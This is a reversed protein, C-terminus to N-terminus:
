EKKSGEDMEMLSKWLNNASEICDFYLSTLLNAPIQLQAALENVAGWDANEYSTVLSYLAGCPGERNLLAKKIEEAIPLDKLIDEMPADILFHLTSFMGLLYAEGQSLPVVKTYNMLESCLNARVLSLKLFEEFFPDLDGDANGAGLLYVWQKLQEIGLKM